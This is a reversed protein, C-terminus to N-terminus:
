LTAKNIGQEGGVITAGRGADPIISDESEEGGAANGLAM